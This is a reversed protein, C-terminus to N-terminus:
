DVSKRFILRTLNGSQILSSFYMKADQYGRYYLDETVDKRYTSYADIHIDLPQSPSINATDVIPSSTITFADLLPQRCSLRGDACIQGQIIVPSEFLVPIYVTALIHQILDKKSGFTDVTKGQLSPLQTLAIVLKTQIKSMDDPIMQELLLELIHSLHGISGTLNKENMAMIDFLKDRVINMDADIALAVAALVGWSSGLMTASDLVNRKIHEKLFQATGLSYHVSVMDAYGFSFSLNQQLSHGPIVKFKSLDQISAGMFKPPSLHESLRPAISQALRNYVRECQLIAQNRYYIATSKAHEDKQVIIIHKFSDRHLHM